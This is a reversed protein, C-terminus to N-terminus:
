FIHEIHTILHVVDFFTQKISYILRSYIEYYKTISTTNCLKDKLVHHCLIWHWWNFFFMFLIQVVLKYTLIRFLPVSNRYVIYMYIYIYVYIQIRWKDKFQVVKSLPDHFKNSRLLSGAHKCSFIYHLSGRIYLMVCILMLSIKTTQQKDMNPKNKSRTQSNNLAM